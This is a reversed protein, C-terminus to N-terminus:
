TLSRSIADEVELLDSEWELEKGRRLRAETAGVAMSALLWWGGGGRSVQGLPGLDRDVPSYGVGAGAGPEFRARDADAPGGPGVRAPGPRDVMSM